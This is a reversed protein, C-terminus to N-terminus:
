GDRDVELAWLGYGLTDLQATIRVVLADSEQRTLTSPFFEMVIPDANLAAFPALDEERWGRMILRETELVADGLGGGGPTLVRIVDGARVRVTCKDALKTARSEDGAPLLWNEGAAGSEGGDVGWPRSVRRETILSM